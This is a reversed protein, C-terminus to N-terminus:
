VARLGGKPLEMGSAIRELVTTTITHLDEPELDEFAMLAAVGATGLATELAWAVAEDRGRQLAIRAFQLAVNTGFRRPIPYDVGDISFLVETAVPPKDTKTTLVLAM